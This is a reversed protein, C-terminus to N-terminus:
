CGTAPCFYPDYQPDMGGLPSTSILTAPTFPTTIGHGFYFAVTALDQINVTTGPAINANVWYADPQGFHVAASALDLINVAGDNNADAWGIKYLSSSTGTAGSPCCRVYGNNHQFGAIFPTVDGTSPGNKTLLFKGNLTIAQGGLSGDANQSCSGGARGPHPSGPLGICAWPGDGILIGSAMPDFSLQACQSTPSPPSGCVPAWVSQEVIPLGGINLEFFPSSQQLKVQLTKCPQGPGCDLGTATAVNVVSPGLNASPVDRYSIITYAVDNATVPNGDHFYIDNRLHWLQTTTGTICGNGANCSVETPNFSSSHSTTQWDVLQANSGGTMPNLALMSDFIQAIVEFDWVTTAQYPSLNDTDQSFGRRILNPNGGGPVYSSSVPTYGPVQRSDLLTWFATETGAGLTNVLSSQTNVCSTGGCQQFNWGNLEVFTDVGSYVPVDMSTQMGLLAAASFLATTIAGGSSFEGGSSLTDYQPNCYFVYNNPESVAGSTPDCVNGTFGSNFLGFLHDPTTGLSFGGTYLQWADPNAGDGFIIPAVQGITYEKLTIQAPCPNGYCVAGGYNPTGFLFNLTDAIVVGFQRRGNSTRIYYDIQQGAPMVVHPYSSPPVTGAAANAVLDCNTGSPTLSLGMAVLDECAARLDDHGSYGSPAVSNGTSTSWWQAGGAINDSVLNYESVVNGGTCAASWTHLAVGNPSCTAATKQALTPATLGQAPAAMTPDAGAAGQFFNSVFQPKDLMHALADGWLTRAPSLYFQSPSNWNVRFTVATNQGSTIAQTGSGGYISSTVKYTGALICPVQYVGTPTSGGQDSVTSSPAGSPQNAATLANYQDQIVSNGTEQNQLTITLSGFGTSCAATSAGAIITAPGPARPTHLAINAAAPHSNIQLDFIGFESTPTTCFFDPHFSNDCYAAASGSGLNAPQVPWDTIDVQGNVFATFMASFDSYVTILLNQEQPGFASWRTPGSQNVARVNTYTGPLTMLMALSLMLVLIPTKTRM